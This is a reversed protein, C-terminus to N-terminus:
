YSEGWRTKEGSDIEKDEMGDIFMEFGYSHKRKWRRFRKKEDASVVRFRRKDRWVDIRNSGSRRLMKVTVSGARHIIMTTQTYRRDSKILQKPRPVPILFIRIFM